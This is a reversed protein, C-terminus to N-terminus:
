VKRVYSEWLDVGVEKVSVRQYTPAGLLKELGLEGLCPRADGGLLVPARFWELRDVLGARVFAAALQGGGEVMMSKVGARTASAM